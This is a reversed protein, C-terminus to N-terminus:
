SIRMKEYLVQRGDRINFKAIILHEKRLLSLANRIARESIATESSIDHFTKSRGDDLISMIKKASPTLRVPKKQALMDPSVPSAARSFNATLFSTAM